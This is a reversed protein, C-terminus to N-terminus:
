IATDADDVTSSNAGKKKKKKSKKKSGKATSSDDVAMDSIAAVVADDAAAQAAKAAAAAAKADSNSYGPLSTGHPGFRSLVAPDDETHWLAVQLWVCLSLIHSVGQSYM